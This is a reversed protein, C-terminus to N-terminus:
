PGLQTQPLDRNEESITFMTKEECLGAITGAISRPVWTMDKREKGEKDM